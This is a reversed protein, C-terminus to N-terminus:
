RAGANAGTFHQVLKLESEDYPTYDAHFLDHQWLGPKDDPSGTMTDWSLHTQTKGNVLGWNYVGINKQKYMPLHSKINCGNPRHLWETCLIPRNFRALQKALGESKEPAFYDHYSIVDSLETFTMDYEKFEWVGATLPQSPEAERAWRFANRLLALSKEGRGDNGPENFIDWVIIKDSNRFNGVVGRVYDALVAEKAPDDAISSGPSSTWGSNHVGVRPPDQTGLYPEKGSFACDDFLVPMVTIGCLAAIDCFDGFNRIFVERESDWVIFQLFVRCSNFGYKSALSLEKKVTERDFTEDQWMETSNVATSPLYNFGIIWGKEAFWDNARQKTWRM